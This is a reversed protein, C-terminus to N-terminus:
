GTRGLLLQGQGHFAAFRQGSASRAIPVLDRARPAFPTVEGTDLAVVRPADGRLVVRTPGIWLPGQKSALLSLDKNSLPMRQDEAGRARVVLEGERLAVRRDGDPSAHWVECPEAERGGTWRLHTPPAFWDRGRVALLLGDEDWALMDAGEVSEFRPRSRRPGHTVDCVVVRGRGDRVAYALADGEPAWMITTFPDVGDPVLVSKAGTRLDVLLLSAEDDGGIGPANREEAARTVCAAALDGRPSVAFAAVLGEPVTTLDRCADDEPGRALVVGRHGRWAGAVLTEGAFGAGSAYVPEDTFPTWHPVVPQTESPAVKARRGSRLGDRLAPALLRVLRERADTDVEAITARGGEGLVLRFTASASSGVRVDLRGRRSEVSASVRELIVPAGPAPPLTVGLWRAFAELFAAGRAEDPASLSGGVLRMEGGGLLIRLARHAPWGGWREPTLKARPASPPWSIEALEVALPHQPSPGPTDRAFTLVRAGEIPLPAHQVLAGNVRNDTASANDGALAACVRDMADVASVRALGRRAAAPVDRLLTFQAEDGELRVGHWHEDDAMGSVRVKGGANAELLVLGVGDYLNLQFGETGLTRTLAALRPTTLEDGEDEGRRECLLEFPATKVVVWGDEGPVLAVEWIPASAGNGYQMPDLTGPRRPAPRPVLGRGEGEFTRALAEAVGDVTGRVFAVNRWEGM